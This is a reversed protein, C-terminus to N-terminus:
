RRIFGGSECRKRAETGPPFLLEPRYLIDVLLSLESQVLPKLQDELLSVIDQLGEIISRDLRMLQSQSREMKPTKAAQLWKSTQRSLLAAKNFLSTVQGELDSPIAIGCSKAVDSLTRICNEVSFRQSANLWTCQSMLFAAQLLQVFVPQRTQVTTSQDSFPSSFFTTIINMVSNIVYNELAIDSHKRDCPSNAVIGMDVLFSKEFLSWMHNSTYIEKMEVETDIYCHNLFNIYAEKVEPICDKHSVMSVIDDLPLLSHCKIETYVNKGMTCCALLKVLEVHYRLASSEDMRHRESRMMEVFINFSAKDNYFVLVDEGSNVLEQMVMDQCKRIFQNEAKVITQLFKLYQVHRGHTEICHVFHQIVKENVENCLTSNDQFISRVSQAELIVSMINVQQIKKYEEAQDGHLPPGIDLDIASGQKDSSSLTRDAKKSSKKRENIIDDDEEKNKKKVQEEVSRSKYVWLESKEVSQRLIDLDAKIQKYSEVDSDSVLLQVQKFAQLVEQRQSFHRFLLHLAGSVLPPYDHMTLHLLVRLFTRGGQGDLDLVACEESSGFIGEAQTGISELDIGKKGLSLTDGSAKETEDFERKFISLLCSIRYDLRVYDIDGTPIMKGDIYHNESICDLISLLTKTLRLLDSFSYFGFYILDRALKVVQLMLIKIIHLCVHYGVEFTLKNQEQDAFSWMEAVVNCLYDEVFLITSSFQARVVEKNHDPTKNSDYDQISMKSPIESWLRAYKVPTVPEQPDRDVHLHLMLRCFSARLDYPVNEDAMCKLILDIDLNPSLINLALYQRNLCMNSFLNLQHRYYDLIAQDEVSGLKAGRSLEGLSMSKERNNWLLLIEEEEVVTIVPEETEDLEAVDEVEVQTKMMRTELLIDANKLSLVSKCILEQTVAIAKKNSICLDSLYDLFCSEWNHMNKRVLGVFTEIELATIHKELLKRNNHLLATITDEALIDYGIQKQMFGFHKAIYEQNKRYDHQSLRLIRYCLRFMYKYAAHRSDNLEEIRLFPGEGEESEMFPAQLIKFLQKLIYQERILKQRDRNPNTVSLELAESKSQENEQGAIFYVIDQLLSIVARFYLM